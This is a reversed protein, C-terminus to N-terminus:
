AIGELMFFQGHVLGLVPLLSVASSENKSGALTTEVKYWLLCWKLLTKQGSPTPCNQLPTGFSSGLSCSAKAPIIQASKAKDLGLERILAEAHRPDAKYTILGNDPHYTLLRNLVNMSQKPQGPGIHGDCKFEYRQKLVTDVYEHGASDALVLFDDGHM